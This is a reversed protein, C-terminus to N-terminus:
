PEGWSEFGCSDQSYPSDYGDYDCYHAEEQSATDTRDSHHDFIGESEQVCQQGAYPSTFTHSVREVESLRAYASHGSLM